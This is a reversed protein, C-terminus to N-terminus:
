LGFLRKFFAILWKLLRLWWPDEPRPDQGTGAPQQELHNTVTVKGGVPVALEYIGGGVYEVGGGTLWHGLEINDPTEGPELKHQAIFSYSGTHVVVRHKKKDITLHKGTDRYANVISVWGVADRQKSVQSMAEALDPFMQAYLELGHEGHGGDEELAIGVGPAPREIRPIPMSAVHLIMKHKGGGTASPGYGRGDITANKKKRSMQHILSLNQRVSTQVINAGSASELQVWLCQDSWLPQYTNHDQQSIQWSLTADVPAPTSNTPTANLHV